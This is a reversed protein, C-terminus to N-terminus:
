AAAVGLANKRRLVGGIMGLGAIMMAWTAPEPVAAGGWTITYAFNNPLDKTFTVDLGFRDGAVLADASSDATFTVATGASNETATWDSLFDSQNNFTEFFVGFDESLPIIKDNSGTITLTFSTADLLGNGPTFLVQNTKDTQLGADEEFNTLGGGFPGIQYNGGLPDVGTPNQGTFTYTTTAAHAALPAFGLLMPLLASLAAKRISANM